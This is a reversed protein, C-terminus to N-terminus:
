GYPTYEFGNGIIKLVAAQNEASESFQMLVQARSTWSGLM